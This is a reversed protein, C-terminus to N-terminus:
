FMKQRKLLAQLLVQQYGAAIDAPFYDVGAQGCRLKLQHQFDEVKKKYASQVEEPQLRLVEGSEADVLKVPRNGVDFNLETPHHLTHFLVVEHKNYRFHQLASFVEDLEKGSRDLMDTFLIILSRRKSRDALEHLAAAVASTGTSHPPPATALDALKTYLLKQHQLTSKVETFDEMEQNFIGLGFADRQKRLLNMLSAAALISFGLKNPEEWTWQKVYPHYMSASRDILVTCRLNTEEEYRKVFLKDTRAYLKWDMHRTSEGTNYLRHEAFEVSFGHYPSKHLGTIFGEVVQKTYFELQDAVHLQPNDIRLM